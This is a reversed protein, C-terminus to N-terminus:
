RIVQCFYNAYILFFLGCVFLVLQAWGTRNSTTALKWLSSLELFIQEATASKGNRKGRSPGHLAIRSFTELVANIAIAFVSPSGTVFLAGDDVVAEIHFM